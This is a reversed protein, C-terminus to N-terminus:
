GRVQASRENLAECRRLFNETTRPIPVRAGAVYIILERGRQLVDEAEHVLRKVASPADNPLVPRYQEVNEAAAVFKPWVYFIDQDSKAIESDRKAAEALTKLKPGIGDFADIRNLSDTLTDAIRDLDRMTMSIKVYRTHYFEALSMTFAKLPEGWMEDIGEMGSYHRVSKGLAIAEQLCESCQKMLENEFSIKVGDSGLEVVHTFIDTARNFLAGALMAANVRKESPETAAEYAERAENLREGPTNIGAETLHFARRTLNVILNKKEELTEEPPEYYIIWYGDYFIRKRGDIERVTCNSVQTENSAMDNMESVGDFSM